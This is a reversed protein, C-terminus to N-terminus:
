DSLAEELAKLLEAHRKANRKLTQINELKWRVAPLRELGDIPFLTWDPEGNKVSLLLARDDAKLCSHIEQVLRERTAEYDNYTYPAITMGAFQTDFVQRQDQFRPRLLEHMPRGHSLLASLFGLRIEDNLGGHDFLQQVDFLDRPHQRDLAACIKGGYLEATSVVTAAAFMDFEEQAAQTLQLQRVPWLHGRLVTNVEIKVTANQRRCLLKAENGTTQAQIQTAIGPTVNDLREKIRRLAEGIERLAIDREDLPLYTLDIDVSLRPMDHVFLNIATGGKIGFTGEAALEPIIRLLLEVQARYASNMM